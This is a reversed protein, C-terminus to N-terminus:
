EEEIEKVLKTLDIGGMDIKSASIQYHHVFGRYEHFAPRYLSTIEKGNSDCPTQMPIDYYSSIGKWLAKLAELQVPYFGLHDRMLKGHVKAGKIIPREGFGKDIYHKQWKLYYANSLECGISPSNFNGGAHFHIHSTNGTQFITGDNDILFHCSLGKGRGELIQFCSKSSLAADWHNVFLRPQRDNYHKKYNSAEFGNDDKWDIVKDWEIEIAADGCFIFNGPNEKKLIKATKAGCLGDITLGHKKQFEKIKNTLELGYSTCGFFSPSWANDYASKKNYNAM